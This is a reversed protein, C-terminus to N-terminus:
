SFKEVWDFALTMTLPSANSVCFADRLVYLALFHYKPILLCQPGQYNLLVKAVLHAM